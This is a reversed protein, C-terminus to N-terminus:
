LTQMRRRRGITRSNKPLIPFKFYFYKPSLFGIVIIVNIIVCNSYDSIVTITNQKKRNFVTEKSFRKRLSWILTLTSRM